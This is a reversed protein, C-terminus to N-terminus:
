HIYKNQSVFESACPNRDFLGQVDLERSWQKSQIMITLLASVIMTAWYNQLGIMDFDQKSGTAFSVTSWVNFRTKINVERSSEMSSLIFARFANSKSIGRSEILCTVMYVVNFM